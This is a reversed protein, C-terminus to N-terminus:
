PAHIVLEALATHHRTALNRIIDQEARIMMTELVRSM